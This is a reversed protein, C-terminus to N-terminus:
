RAQMTQSNCYGNSQNRQDALSVQIGQLDLVVDNGTATIPMIGATHLQHAGELRLGIMPRPAYGPRHRAPKTHIKIADGIAKTVLDVGGVLALDVLEALVIPGTGAQQKTAHGHETINGMIAPTLNIAQMHVHPQHPRACATLADLPRHMTRSAAVLGITPIVLQTVLGEDIEAILLAPPQLLAESTKLQFVARAQPRGETVEIGVARRAQAHTDALPQRATE